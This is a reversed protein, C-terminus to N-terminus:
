TREKAWLGNKARYVQIDSMTAIRIMDVTGDGGPFALCARELPHPALRVCLSSMDKNRQPGEGRGKGGTQWKAPYYTVPLERYRAWAGAAQDYSVWGPERSKCDGHIVHGIREIFRDFRDLASLVYDVDRERVGNRGGCVIVVLGPM